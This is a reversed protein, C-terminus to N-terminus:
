ENAKGTLARIEAPLAFVSPDVPAHTVSQITMTMVQGMVHSKTLTALKIGDFDKYESFEVVVEMEGMESTQTMRSGLPLWSEADYCTRVVDGGATTMKLMWCPRGQMESKEEMEVTAFQKYPDAGSDFDAQRLTQELEDGSLIKPGTMPSNQWAVQGDYGSTMEGIGPITAKSVMRNPRATWVEMEMTMGMAPMTMEATMHRAQHKAFAARGGVAAISREVVDKASPQGQAALPAAYLTALACLTLIPTEILNRM